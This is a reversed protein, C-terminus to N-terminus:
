QKVGSNSGANTNAAPSKNGGTGTLTTPDGGRFTVAFGFRATWRTVPSLTGFNQPIVQGAQSFGLPFGAFQGVHVGPTLFLRNWIHASVGGFFGFSSTDAKGNSIDIVPGASIALGFHPKNLPWDFPDHYNLLGVLAPRIGSNGNVALVTSTATSPPVPPANVTAYSRAPLTTLLFGGSVTMQNFGAQLPYSKPSGATDSGNYTEKVILSGNKTRDLFGQGYIVHPGRVVADTPEVRTKIDDYTLLLQAANELISDDTCATNGLVAKAAEIKPILLKYQNMVDGWASVTDKISVSPYSGSSPKEPQIKQISKNASDIMAKADALASNLPGCPDAIAKNIGASSSPLLQSLKGLLGSLSSIDDTASPNVTVSMEYKYLVDNVGSIKFAYNATHLITSPSVTSWDLNIVDASPAVPANVPKPWAPSDPSIVEVVKAKAVDNAVKNHDLLPSSPASQTGMTSGPRAVTPTTTQQGNRKFSAAVADVIAIHNKILGALKSDDLNFATVHSDIYAVVTNDSDGLQIMRFVDDNTMSEPNQTATAAYTCLFLVLLRWVIGSLKTRHRM